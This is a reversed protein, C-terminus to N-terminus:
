IEDDVLDWNRGDFSFTVELKGNNPKCYRNCWDKNWDGGLSRLLKHSGFWVKRWAKFQSGVNDLLLSLVADSAMAHLHTLPVVGYPQFEGACAPVSVKTQEEWSTVTTRMKGVKAGHQYHLSNFANSDEPNVIIHAALAYAEVFAFVITALSIESQLALLRQDSHWDGTCSVILDSRSLFELTDTNSSVSQQWDDEFAFIDVHPFDRKLNQALADAKNRHESTLGLLHRSINESRLVDGDFLILSKVGSQVLLKAISAGVSGCGIIAVRCKQLEDLASNKDRGLTWSSDHRFLLSGTIKISSMRDKLPELPIYDRFGNMISKNSFPEHKFISKAFELAAVCTGRATDFSVLSIPCIVSRNSLTQGLKVTLEELIQPYETEIFALLQSINKPYDTPMWSTEFHLFLSVHIKSLIRNRPKAKDKSPLLNRNDLYSVLQEKSDACVVGVSSSKFVFIERPSKDGIACLSKVRKESDINYLWYSLFEDKFDGELENNLAQELLRFSDALLEIIFNLNSTDPIVERSWVCLKGCKELHPIDLPKLEPKVLYLSPTDYPYQQSFLIAIKVQGGEGVREELFWGFLYNGYRALQKTSLKRAGYPALLLEIEDIHKRMGMEAM